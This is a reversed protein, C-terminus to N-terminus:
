ACGAAGAPSRERLSAALGGVEDRRVFESRGLLGPELPEEGQRGVQALLDAVVEQSADGSESSSRSARCCPGRHALAPARRKRGCEAALAESGASSRQPRPGGACGGPSAADERRSCSPWWSSSRHRGAGDGRGLRCGPLLERVARRRGLRGRHRGVGGDDGAAPPHASLGGGSPHGADGGGSGGRRDAAVGRHHGGADPVLGHAAHHAAGPDQGLIPDFSVVLLRRYLLLVAALVVVALGGTIWLDAATVGLVNGFLVPDPRGRLHRMTSILVVGLALAAAFFIGIATDERITGARSVYSIGVAVLVGPWWRASWCTSGWWIPWRWGRCSPTRWRTAWFLWPVCSSTAASSRASWAWSSPPSRAGAAHLRSHLARDALERDDSALSRGSAPRTGRDARAAAASTSSSPDQRRGGGDARRLGGASAGRHLGRRAARRQDAPRQAAGGPRVPRRGSGPRPDLGAGHGLPRASRCAPRPDGGPPSTWGPSRSTSCCSTRSRRWRGPWSSGSSSAAPCSASPGSRWTPSAWGARLSEADVARDAAPPTQALRGRGYRGM